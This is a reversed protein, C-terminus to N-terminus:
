PLVAPPAVFCDLVTERDVSLYYRYSGDVMAGGCRDTPRSSYGYLPFGDITYGLLIHEPFALYGKADNNRILSGSLAVAVVETSLCTPVFPNGVVRIPLVAIVQGSGSVSTENKQSIVRVGEQEEITLFETPWVGGYPRYGGCLLATGNSAVPETTTSNVEETPLPPQIVEEVKPSQTLFTALQERLREINGRRDIRAVTVVEASVTDKPENTFAPTSIIPIDSQDVAFFKRATEATTVVILFAVAILFLLFDRTRIM